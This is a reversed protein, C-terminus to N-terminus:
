LFEKTVASYIKIGEVTLHPYILAMLADRLEIRPINADYYQTSNQRWIYAMNSITYSLSQFQHPTIDSRLMEESQLKEFFSLYFNYLKLRFSEMNKAITTSENSLEVIHKYFFTNNDRNQDMLYFSRILEKLLTHADLNELQISQFDSYLELQITSILDEKKPFHYTLNGITTGASEAINRLSVNSYGKENFLKKAHELIKESTQAM